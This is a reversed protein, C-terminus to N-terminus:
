FGLWGKRKKTPIDDVSRNSYKSQDVPKEEEPEEEPEEETEECNFEEISLIQAPNVSIPGSCDEEDLASGDSDYKNELVWFGFEDGTTDIEDTYYVSRDERDSAAMSVVFYSGKTAKVNGATM